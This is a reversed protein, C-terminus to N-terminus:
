PGKQGQADYLSITPSNDSRGVELIIRGRSATDTIILRDATLTRGPPSQAELRAQTALLGVTVAGAVVAALSLMTLRRM